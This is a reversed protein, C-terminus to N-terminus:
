LKLQYLNASFGAYTDAHYYVNNVGYFNVIFINM